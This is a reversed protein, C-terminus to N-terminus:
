QVKEKLKALLHEVGAITAQLSNPIDGRGGGACYDIHFRGKVDHEDCNFAYATFSLVVAVKERGLRKVSRRQEEEVLKTVRVQEKCAHNEKSPIENTM